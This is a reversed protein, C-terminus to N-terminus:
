VTARAWVLMRVERVGFISNNFEEENLVFVECSSHEKQYPTCTSYGFPVSLDTKASACLANM